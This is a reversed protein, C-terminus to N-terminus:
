TVATSINFQVTNFGCWVASPLNPKSQVHLNSKITMCYMYVYICAFVNEFCMEQLSFIENEISIGHGLNVLVVLVSTNQSVGRQGMFVWVLSECWIGLWFMVFDFNCIKFYQWFNLNQFKALLKIHSVGESTAQYLHIFICHIWGSSYASCLPCPICSPRRVFFVFTNHHSYIFIRRSVWFWELSHLTGVPLVAPDPRSMLEWYWLGMSKRNRYPLLEWCLLYSQQVTLLRVSPSVPPRLSVLIGGVVKNHPPYLSEMQCWLSWLHAQVFHKYKAPMIKLHM